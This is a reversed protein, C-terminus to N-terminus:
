TVPTPRRRLTQLQLRSPRTPAPVPATEAFGYSKKACGVDSSTTLVDKKRSTNFAPRDSITSRVSECSISLVAHLMRSWVQSEAHLASNLRLHLRCGTNPNDEAHIAVSRSGSSRVSCPASRRRWFFIAGDAECHNGPRRAPGSQAPIREAADQLVGDVREM